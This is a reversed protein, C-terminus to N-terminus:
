GQEHEGKSQFSQSAPCQNLNMYANDGKGSDPTGTAPSAPNTGRPATSRDALRFSADGVADAQWKPGEVAKGPLGPTAVRPKGSTELPALWEATRRSRPQASPLGTSREYLRRREAVNRKLRRLGLTARALAPGFHFPYPRLSAFNQVRSTHKSSSTPLPRTGPLGQSVLTASVPLLPSAGRSGTGAGFDRPGPTTVMAACKGSATRRWSRM